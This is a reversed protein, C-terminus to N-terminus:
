SLVANPEVKARAGLRYAFLATPDNRHVRTVASAHSAISNRQETATLGQRLLDIGDSGRLTWEKGVLGGVVRVEGAWGLAFAWCSFLAALGLVAGPTLLPSSTWRM